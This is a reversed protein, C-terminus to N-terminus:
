YTCANARRLCDVIAAADEPERDNAHWWAWAEKSLNYGWWKAVFWRLVERAKSQEPTEYGAVWNSLEVEANDAQTAM